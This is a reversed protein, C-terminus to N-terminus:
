AVFVKAEGPMLRINKREEVGAGRIDKGEVTPMTRAEDAFNAAVVYDRGDQGHVRVGRLGEEGLNLRSNRSSRALERTTDSGISAVVIWAVDLVVTNPATWHSGRRLYWAIEEVRLSRLPGGRPKGYRLMTLTDAGYLGIVSLCGEISIWRSQLDLIEDEPAPSAISISGQETELTRLRGNFLDNPLNLHLGQEEYM